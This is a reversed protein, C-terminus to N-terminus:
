LSSHQPQSVHLWRKSRDLAVFVLPAIAAAVLGGLLSNRATAMSIGDSFAEGLGVLALTKFAAGSLVVLASTLGGEIWLRRSLLYVMLFVFTMAFANTGVDTGSFADLGYGLMFAGFAGGVSQHRLGLYVCLVLMVDPVVAGFMARHLLTTQLLVAGVGFAVILLVNRM